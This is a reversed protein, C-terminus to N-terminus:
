AGDSMVSKHKKLEYISDKFLVKFFRGSSRRSPKLLPSPKQEQETDSTPLTVM